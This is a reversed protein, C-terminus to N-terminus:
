FFILSDVNPKQFSHMYSQTCTTKKTHLGNATAKTSLKIKDSNLSEAFIRRENKMTADDANTRMSECIQRRKKQKTKKHEPLNTENILDVFLFANAHASNQHFLLIERTLIEPITFLM